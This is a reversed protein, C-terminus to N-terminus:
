PESKEKTLSRKLMFTTAREVRDDSVVERFPMDARSAPHSQDSRKSRPSEAPLDKIHDSM